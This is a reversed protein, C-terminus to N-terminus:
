RRCEGYPRDNMSSKGCVGVFGQLYLRILQLRPDSAEQGTNGLTRYLMRGSNKGAAWLRSGGVGTVVTITVMLKMFTRRNLSRTVLDSWIKGRRGGPVNRPRFGMTGQTEQAELATLVPPQNYAKCLLSKKAQIKQVDSNTKM